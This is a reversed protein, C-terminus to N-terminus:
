RGPRRTRNSAAGLGALGQAFFAVRDDQDVGVGGGDHGVRLRGVAGVDLRDGPFDDGLDDLLFPGVGQQGGEAPLGAEVRGHVQM